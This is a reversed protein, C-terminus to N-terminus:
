CLFNIWWVNRYFDPAHDAIAAPLDPWRSCDFGLHRAYDTVAMARVADTRFPYGYPSVGQPLDDFLPEIGIHALEKHFKFYLARRRCVEGTSDVKGLMQLSKCHIAPHGPMEYEAQDLSSPLENATRVKRISRILKESASRVRVGTINQICALTRKVTFNISVLDKSCPLAPPLQCGSINRNVLLVAGDPWYFTKRLSFLGLDGRTGLLVGREDRSLFGHANDEVLTAGNIVCYERFLDLAQPFGFYNVAIVVKVSADVPLADPALRENVPYFLAEAGVSHVAALLDRCIFAPMLVSHGAGVGLATLGASLAHRGMSFYRFETSNETNGVDFPYRNLQSVKLDALM